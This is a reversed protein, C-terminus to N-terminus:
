TRGWRIVPVDRLYACQGNSAIVLLATTNNTKVDSYMTWGNGVSYTYQIHVAPECVISEGEAYGPPATPEGLSGTGVPTVVLHRETAYHPNTWHWLFIITALAIWELCVLLWPNCANQEPRQKNM